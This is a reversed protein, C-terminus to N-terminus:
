LGGGALPRPIKSLKEQLRDPPIQGAFLEGDVVFSPTGRVGLRQGSELDAKLRQAVSPSSLCELFRDRDLGLAVALGELDVEGGGAQQRFLADNMEWFHAQAQACLAARALRCASRHFPKSIAPNCEDDLPWQRHILRVSKERELLSRLERHARSCHPCEYDSYEVISVAPAPSGIWPLGGEEGTALQGAEEGGSPQWYRPYCFWLAVMLGLCAAAAAGTLGLRRRLALLDERVLQRLGVGSRRALRFTLAVMSLNVLWSAACLLCLSRVALESIGALVISVLASLSTLLLLLGAPWRSHPRRAVLGWGALLGMALYGLVGWVAVPLGLFVSYPSEAVSDCSVERSIACFSRYAPDTHVRLHILALEAALVLGAAALALLGILWWQRRPEGITNM